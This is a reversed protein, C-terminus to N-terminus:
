PDLRRCAVSTRRGTLRESVIGHAPEVVVAAPRAASQGVGGAGVIAVRHRAKRDRVEAVARMSSISGGITRSKM